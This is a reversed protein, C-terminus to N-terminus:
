VVSPLWIEFCAGSLNGKGTGITGGHEEIVKRCIALGLGTGEAKTTFFPRFLSDESSETLGPGNDEFRFRVGGSREQIASMRIRGKDELADIANRMLNTFVEEILNADVEVEPCNKGISVDVRIQRSEIEPLLAQLSDQMLSEPDCKALQLELPKTFALTRRMLKELKQMRSALDELIEAQGEGLQDAVARLALNVATIPNKIEHALVAASEGITALAKLMATERQQAQKLETIDRGEPILMVVKGEEDRIPKLSFDVIRKAEEAGAFEAEFRVFGGNAVTAIAAKVREREAESSAWWRTEWFPRGIVEEYAEGSAELAARNVDLVAGNVDLLGVFEFTQDFVARLRREVERRAEEAHIRDTVDRFNGCFVPEDEDPVDVRSVSIEVWRMEGSKHPVEFTRTTNLIWTDGTAAYKELYSDHESRYPEPMLMSINRGILEGPEYGFLSVVSASAELIIGKPNISVMPDLMGEMLARVRTESQVLSDSAEREATVDRASSTLGLVVGDRIYPRITWLMRHVEGTSSVQRNEFSAPAEDLTSMWGQFAKMTRARDDEHVFDFATRGLLESRPVAFVRECAANAYVIRGEGDVVTMLESTQDVFRLLLERDDPNMSTLKSDSM